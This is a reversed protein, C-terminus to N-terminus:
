QGPTLVTSIDQRLLAMTSIRLGTSLLLGRMLHRMEQCGLNKIYFLGTISISRCQGMLSSFLLTSHSITNLRSSTVVTALSMGFSLPVTETTIPAPGQSTLVLRLSSSALPEKMILNTLDLLFITAFLRIGANSKGAM